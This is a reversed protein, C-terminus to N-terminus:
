WAPFYLKSIDLFWVNIKQLMFPCYTLLINLPFPKVIIICLTSYVGQELPTCCQLVARVFMLCNLCVTTHLYRSITSITSLRSRAVGNWLRSLFLELIQEHRCSFNSCETSIYIYSCYTIQCNTFFLQCFCRSINSMIASQLIIHRFIMTFQSMHM